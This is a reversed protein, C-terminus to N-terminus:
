KLYPLADLDDPRESKAASVSQDETGPPMDTSPPGGQFGPQIPQTQSHELGLSKHEQVFLSTHEGEKSNSSRSEEPMLIHSISYEEHGLVNLQKERIDIQDATIKTITGSRPGIKTKETVIYTKNSPTALIARIRGPGTLVGVLRFSELPIQELESKPAIRALAMKPMKFPDRLSLTETNISGQSSSSKPAEPTASKSVPAEQTQAYAQSYSLSLSLSLLPLLIM